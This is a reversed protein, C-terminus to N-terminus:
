YNISSILAIESFFIRFPLAIDILGIDFNAESLIARNAKSYAIFFLRFFTLQTCLAFM